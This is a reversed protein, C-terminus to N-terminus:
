DSGSLFTDAQERWCTPLKDIRRLKSASVSVKRDGRLVAEVVNPGLFALRVLRSAEEPNLGESNAIQTITKTPSAFWRDRLAHGKAILRVTTQDVVNSETDGLILRLGHRSRAIRIASKIECSEALDLHCAESIMKSPALQVRVCDDGVDVREILSSWQAIRERSTKKRNAMALDNLSARALSVQRAEAGDALAYRAAYPDALWGDIVRLIVDELVEANIRWRDKSAVAGRESAKTLYYRYRRGRSRSTTPTMREGNAFLKGALSSQDQTRSESRQAAAKPLPSM